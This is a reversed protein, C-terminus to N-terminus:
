INQPPLTLPINNKVFRSQDNIPSFSNILHKNSNRVPSHYKIAGSQSNIDDYKPNNL